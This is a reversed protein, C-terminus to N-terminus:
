AAREIARIVDDMARLLEKRVVDAGEELPKTFWGPPVSQMVWAGRGYVPHRLKGKDMSKLDSVKKGTAVIKVGVGQGGGRTKTALKSSAVTAALGGRHPLEALANAQVDKKLQKTGRQIAKYLEKRAGKGAEGQAKLAKSVQALQNAGRIELEM